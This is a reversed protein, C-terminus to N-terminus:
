LQMMNKKCQLWRVKQVIHKMLRFLSKRMACVLHLLHMVTMHTLHMILALVLVVLCLLLWNITVCHKCWGSQCIGLSEIITREEDVVDDVDVDDIHQDIPQNQVQM